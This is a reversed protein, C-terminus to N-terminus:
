IKLEGTKVQEVILPQTLKYLDLITYDLGPTAGSEMLSLELTKALAMWQDNLTRTDMCQFDPILPANM